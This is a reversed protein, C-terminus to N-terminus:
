GLNAEEILALAEEVDINCRLVKKLELLESLVHNVPVREPATDENSLLTVRLLLDRAESPILGRGACTEILKSTRERGIKEVSHEVWALLEPLVSWDAEQKGDAPREDAPATSASEQAARIEELSVQKVKPRGPGEELMGGEERAVEAPPIMDEPPSFEEARLDPYYHILLQERIDVLTRQIENKLIKMEYELAKVRDELKVLVGGQKSTLVKCAHAPRWPLGETQIFFQRAPVVL